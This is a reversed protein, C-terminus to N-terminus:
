STSMTWWWWRRRGDGACPDAIRATTAVGRGEGDGEGDGDGEERGIGDGRRERQRATCRAIGRGCCCLLTRGDRRGMTAIDDRHVVRFVEARRNQLRGGTVVVAVTFTLTVAVAVIVAVATVMAVDHVRGGAARSVGAEAQSRGCLRLVVVGMVRRVRRGLRCRRMRERVVRWSGMLGAQRM